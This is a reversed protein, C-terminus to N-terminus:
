GYLWDVCEENMQGTLQHDVLAAKLGATRLADYGCETADWGAWGLKYVANLCQQSEPIGYADAWIGYPCQVYHKCRAALVPESTIFGPLLRLKHSNVIRCGNLVVGQHHLKTRVGSTSCERCISTPNQVRTKNTVNSVLGCGPCTVDVRVQLWCKHCLVGPRPKTTACGCNSCVTNKRRIKSSCSNCMNTELDIQRMRIISVQRTKGCVSCIVPVHQSDFCKGCLGDHQTTPMVKGGCKRCKKVKSARRQFCFLCVQSDSRKPKGCACTNWKRAM